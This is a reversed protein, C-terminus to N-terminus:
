VTVDACSELYLRVGEKMQETSLQIHERKETEQEFYEEMLKRGFDRRNNSAFMDKLLAGTLRNKLRDTIREAEKQSVLYEEALQTFIEQIIRVMREADDEIFENLVINSANSAM